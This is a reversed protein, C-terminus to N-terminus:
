SGGLRNASSTLQMKPTAYAITMATPITQCNKDTRLLRFFLPGFGGDGGAQRQFTALSETAKHIAKSRASVRPDRKAFDTRSLLSACILIAMPSSEIIIASEAQLGSGYFAVNFM